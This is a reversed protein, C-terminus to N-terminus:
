DCDLNASSDHFLTASIGNWEFESSLSIHFFFVNFAFFQITPNSSVPSLPLPIFFRTHADPYVSHRMSKSWHIFFPICIPLLCPFSLFLRGQLLMKKSKYEGASSAVFVFRSLPIDYILDPMPEFSPLFLNTSLMSHLESLLGKM